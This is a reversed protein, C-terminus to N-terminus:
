VPPAPDYQIYRRVERAREVSDLRAVLHLAMDIGASVGASTIVSGADVFRADADIEVDPAYEALADISGWHTTAKRGDLLGAKALPFAGTCVSALLTGRGALERLRAIFGEDDLLPNVRGGPVVLVDVDELEAWTTDPVLRLGHSCRVDRAEEAVTVVRIEGNTSSRAWQALVEYPGALDLEEVGDWVVLAVTKASM